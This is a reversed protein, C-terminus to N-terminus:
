GLSAFLLDGGGRWTLFLRCLVLVPYSLSEVFHHAGMFLANMYGSYVWLFEHFWHSCFLVVSGHNVEWQNQMSGYELM